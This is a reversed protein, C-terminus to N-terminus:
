KRASAGLASEFSTTPGAPNPVLISEPQNAGLAGILQAFTTAYGYHGGSGGAGILAMGSAAGFPTTGSPNDNTGLGILALAPNTSSPGWM